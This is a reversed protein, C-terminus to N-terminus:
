GLLAKIWTTYKWFRFSEDYPGIVDALRLAIIELSQDANSTTSNAHQALLEECLIKKYGYSDFERLYSSM